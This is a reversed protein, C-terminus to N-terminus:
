RLADTARAIWQRPSRIHSSPRTINSALDHSKDALQSMMRSMSRKRRRHRAILATALVVAGAYLALLPRHRTAVAPPAAELDNREGHQHMLGFAEQDDTASMMRREDLAERDLSACLARDGIRRLEHLDLQLEPREPSGVEVRDEDVTMVAGLLDGDITLVPM